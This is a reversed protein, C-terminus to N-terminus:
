MYGNKEVAIRMYILQKLEAATMDYMPICKIIGAIIMVGLGWIIGPIYGAMFLASVSESIAGFLM